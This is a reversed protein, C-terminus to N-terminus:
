CQLCQGSLSYGASIGELPMLMEPIKSVGGQSSLGSQCLNFCKETFGSVFTLLQWHLIFRLTTCERIELSPLFRSTGCTPLIMSGAHYLDEIWRNQTAANLNIIADSTSETTTNWGTLPEDGQKVFNSVSCKSCFPLLHFLEWHTLFGQQCVYLMINPPSM